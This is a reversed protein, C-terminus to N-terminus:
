PKRTLRRRPRDRRVPMTFTWESTIQGKNVWKVTVGFTGADEEGGAFAYPDAQGKSSTAALSGTAQKAAGKVVSQSRRFLRPTLVCRTEDRERRGVDVCVDGDVGSDRANRGDRGAREFRGRRGEGRKM